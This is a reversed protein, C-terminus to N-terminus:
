LIVTANSSTPENERTYVQIRAGARYSRSSTAFRARAAGGDNAARAAPRMSHAACNGAVANRKNPLNTKHRPICNYNRTIEGISRAM